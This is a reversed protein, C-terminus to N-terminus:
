PILILKGAAGPRALLEHASAASSLPFEERIVPSFRGKVLRATLWEAIAKKDADPTNFVDMGTISLDKHETVIKGPTRAFATVTHGQELAQEILHRGTRSSAGFIVIEM